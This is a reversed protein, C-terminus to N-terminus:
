TLDEMFWFIDIARIIGVVKEGDMVFVSNTKKRAIIGAARRVDEDADVTLDTLPRMIKKVPLIKGHKKRRFIGGPLQFLGDGNKHDVAKLLSGTTVFGSVKNNKGTVLLFGYDKWQGGMGSFKNVLIEAARHAYENENIVPFDDIPVMVQSAKIVM